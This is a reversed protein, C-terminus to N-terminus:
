PPMMWGISTRKTQQVSFDPRLDARRWGCAMCRCRREIDRLAVDDDFCDVSLTGEHHCPWDDERKGLCYVLLTTVGHTRVHAITVPSDDRETKESQRGKYRTM